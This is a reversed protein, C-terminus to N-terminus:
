RSAQAIGKARCLFFVERYAADLSAAFSGDLPVERSAYSSATADLNRARGIIEEFRAGEREWASLCADIECYSRVKREAHKAHFHWQSHGQQMSRDCFEDFTMARFMVSRATPEYIVRLGRPRLRWGLEIDECGPPLDPDFLGHEILLYRKCSIRESRFATYDLVQGPRFQGYGFLQCGVETVHRMLPVAAVTPDLSVHGLVAVAPDPERRHAALHSELLWPDPVDDDDMFVIIPSRATWVGLNRAAAVGSAKQRFVRLPLGDGLAELVAITDDASGDDVVIVEFREFALSQRWLGALVRPLLQGQDRTALIASIEPVAGELM